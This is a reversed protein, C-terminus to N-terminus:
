LVKIEEPCGEIYASPVFDLETDLLFDFSPPGSVVRESSKSHFSREFARWDVRDVNGGKVSNKIWLGFFIINMPLLGFNM